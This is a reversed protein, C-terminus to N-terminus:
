RWHGRVNAEDLAQYQGSQILDVAERVTGKDWTVIKIGAAQLAQFAKPGMNGSVVLQIKQRAVLQAAQVGAGQAAEVNESNSIVEVAQTDTDYIIFYATRGFRPDVLSQLDKGQASVAIRM